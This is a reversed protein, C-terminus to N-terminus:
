SWKTCKTNMQYVKGTKTDHLLFFRAVRNPALFPFFISRAREMWFKNGAASQHESLILSFWRFRIYRTGRRRRPGGNKRNNKEQVGSQKVLIVPMEKCTAIAELKETVRSNEPHSCNNKENCSL